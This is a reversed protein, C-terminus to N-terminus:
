AVVTYSYTTDVAASSDSYTAEVPAGLLHMQGDPDARFVEYGTADAVAKWKMSIEESLRSSTLSLDEPAFLSM